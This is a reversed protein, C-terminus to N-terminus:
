SPTSTNSTARRKPPTPSLGRSWGATVLADAADNEQGVHSHRWAAGAQLKDCAPIKPWSEMIVGLPDAPREIETCPFTFNHTETPQHAHGVLYGGTTLGVATLGAAATITINKRTINM